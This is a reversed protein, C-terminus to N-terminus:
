APGLDNGLAAASGGVRCITVIVSAGTVVTRRSDRPSLDRPPHSGAATVRRHLIQVAIRKALGRRSMPM